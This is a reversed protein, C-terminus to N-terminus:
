SAGRADRTRESGPLKTAPGGGAESPCGGRSGADVVAGAVEKGGGGGGPRGRRLRGWRPRWTASTASARTACLCRRARACSAGGCARARAASFCARRRALSTACRAATSSSPCRAPHPHPHTPPPPPFELAHRKAGAPLPACSTREAGPRAAAASGRLQAARHEKSGAGGGGPQALRRRDGRLLVVDQHPLHRRRADRCLLQPGSPPRPRPSPTFVPTPESLLAAEERGRRGPTIWARAMRGPRRSGARCPRTCPGRFRPAGAAPGAAAAAYSGAAGCPEGPGSAARVLFEDVIPLEAFAPFYQRNELSNAMAALTGAPRRWRAGAPVAPPASPRAPAAPPRRPPLPPPPPARRAPGAAAAAVPASRHAGQAVQGASQAPNPPPRPGQRTGPAARDPTSPNISANPAHTQHGPASRIPRSAAPTRAQPALVARSSVPCTPRRQAPGSPRAAGPARGCNRPRARARNACGTGGFAVAACQRLDRGRRAGWRRGWGACRCAARAPM